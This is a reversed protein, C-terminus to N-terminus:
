GIMTSKIIFGGRDLGELIELPILPDDPRGYRYTKSIVGPIEYSGLSTDRGREAALSTVLKAALEKLAPPVTEFGARYSTVIKEAAWWSPDDDQIRRLGNPGDMEFGDDLTLTDGGETLSLVEIIPKRSLYIVDAPCHLRITETLTEARLTLVQVGARDLNCAGALMESARENLRTLAANSLKGAGIVEIMEDLTLLTPDTAPTTVTLM